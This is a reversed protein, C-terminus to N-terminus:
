KTSMKDFIKNAQAPNWNNLQGNTPMMFLDWIFTPFLGQWFNGVAVYWPLFCVAKDIQIAHVIQEAVWEPQMTSGMSYGQFLETNIHAPAVLTSKVGNKGLANMEIRLAEMFGRAAFKSTCYEIMRASPFFGAASSVGVIHGDNREMMAPLFAKVTWFHAMVNVGMTLEIKNDPTEMLAKGILIGANNILGWVFGHEKQVQEALAYIAERNCLNVTYPFVQAGPYKQKCLEATQKLGAEDIDWIIVKCGHKALEFCQARGLGNGAGTLVVTKGRISKKTPGFKAYLAVLVLLALATAKLTTPHFAVRQILASVLTLIPAEEVTQEQARVASM